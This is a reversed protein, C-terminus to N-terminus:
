GASREGMESREVGGDAQTMVEAGNLIVTAGQFSINPDSAAGEGAEGRGATPDFAGEENTLGYNQAMKMTEAREAELAKIRSESGEGGGEREIEILEDYKDLRGGLVGSVMSIDQLGAVSAALGPLGQPAGQQIYEMGRQIMTGGGMGAVDAADSAQVAALNGVDETASRTEDTNRLGFNVYSENPGLVGSRQLRGEMSTYGQESMMALTRQRKKKPMDDLKALYKAAAGNPQAKAERRLFGEVDKSMAANRADADALTGPKMDSISGSMIMGLATGLNSAGESTGILSRVSSKASSALAPQMFKDRMEVRQLQQVSEGLNYKNVAEQNANKAQLAYSVEQKSLDSNESLMNVFEGRNMSAYQEPINGSRIAEVLDRAEGRFAKKGLRDSLRGVAGLRNAVKSQSANLVDETHEQRQRDITYLGWANMAGAGSARYGSTFNLESQILQPAFQTNIGMGALQPAIEEVRARVEGPSVGALRGSSVLNRITREVKAGSMQNYSGGTMGEMNRMLEDFSSDPGFTEKLASLAGTWQELTKATKQAAKARRGAKMGEQEDPAASEFDAIQGGSMPAIQPMMGEQTLRSYMQGMEDATNGQTKSRWNQDGFFNAHIDSAMAGVSNASMGMNGYVPDPTARSGEFIRSTINQASRGGTVATRLPNGMISTVNLATEAMKYSAQAREPTWEQGALAAFGRATEMAIPMDAQAGHQMARRQQETEEFQRMNDAMNGGFGFPMMQPMGFMGGQSAMQSSIASMAINALPNGTSYPNYPQFSQGPDSIAV